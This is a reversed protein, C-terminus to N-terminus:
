RGAPGEDGCRGSGNQEDENLLKGLQELAERLRRYASGPHKFGYQDCIKKIKEHSDGLELEILLVGRYEEPLKDILERVQHRTRLQDFKGTMSLLPHNQDLGHYERKNKRREGNEEEKEEGRGFHKRTLDLLDRRSTKKALAILGEPSVPIKAPHDALYHMLAPYLGQTVDGTDFGINALSRFEVRLLRSSPRNISGCVWEIAKKLAASDGSRAHDLLGQIDVNNGPQM